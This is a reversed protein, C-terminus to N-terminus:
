LSWPLLAIDFGAPPLEVDAVSAKEFRVRDGLEAPTAQRASEIRDGDPDFALVLAALSAYHWTMRGEGSGIELM